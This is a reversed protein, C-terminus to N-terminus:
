RQTAAFIWILMMVVVITIFARGPNWEMQPDSKRKPM